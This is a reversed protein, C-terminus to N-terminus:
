KYVDHDGISLMVTHNKELYQFVIRIKHTVSFGYKDSFKGHLKHVELSKHNRTDKFLELKQFAKEQIDPEVKKLMKLFKPTFGVTTM